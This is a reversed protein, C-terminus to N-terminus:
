CFAKERDFELEFLNNFLKQLETAKELTMNDVASRFMPIVYVPLSQLDQLNTSVLNPSDEDEEGPRDVKKAESIQQETLAAVKPDSLILNLYLKMADEFKERFLFLKCDLAACKELQYPNYVSWFKVTQAMKTNM